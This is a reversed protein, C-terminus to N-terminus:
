HSKCIEMANPGCTPCTHELKGSAFFNEAMGKCDPCTMRKQSSYAVVRGKQTVPLKVWTTECKACMLADHPLDTSATASKNAQCGTAVLLAAAGTIATALFPIQFM